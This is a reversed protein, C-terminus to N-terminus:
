ARLWRDTPRLTHYDDIAPSPDLTVLPEGGALWAILRHLLKATDSEVCM